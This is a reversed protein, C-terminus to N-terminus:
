FSNTIFMNNIFLKYQLLLHFTKVDGWEVRLSFQGAYFYGARAMDRPTQAMHSPWGDFSSLRNSYVAYAPYKPKDFNIGLPDLQALREAPTQSPPNAGGRSPAPQSSGGQPQRDPGAGGENPGSSKAKVTAGGQPPNSPNTSNQRPLSRESSENSSRSVGSNLSKSETLQSSHPTLGSAGGVSTAEEQTNPNSGPSPQVEEIVLGPPVSSSESLSSLVEEQKDPVESIVLGGAASQSSRPEGKIRTQEEKKRKKKERKLKSKSPAEPSVLINM